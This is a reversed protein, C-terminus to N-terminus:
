PRAVPKAEDPEARAVVAGVRAFDLEGAFQQRINEETLDVGRFMMGGMGGRGGRHGGKGFGEHQGHGGWGKGGRREGRTTQQQDQTTATSQALAIPAALAVASLSAITLTKFKGPKNM